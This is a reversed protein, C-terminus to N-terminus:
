YEDSLNGGRRKANCSKSCCSVEDWCREWKKRWTFPRNCVVCVKSPLNSKTFREKQVADKGKKKGGGGRKGELSTKSRTHKSQVANNRRQFIPKYDPAVIVFATAINLRSQHLIAPVLPILCHIFSSIRWLM